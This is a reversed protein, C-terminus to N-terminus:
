ILDHCIGSCIHFFFAFYRATVYNGLHSHLSMWTCRCFPQSWILTVLGQFNRDAHLYCVCLLVIVNTWCQSLFILLLNEIEASLWSVILMFSYTNNSNSCETRTKDSNSSAPCSMDLFLLKKITQIWPLNGAPRGILKVGIEKQNPKQQGHM